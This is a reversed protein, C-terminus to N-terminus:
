SKASALVRLVVVDHPEVSATFSDTYNGDHGSDWLDLVGYDVGESLGDVAAFEVSLSVAANDDIRNILLLAVDGNALQKYWVTSDSEDVLRGQFGLADQNLAILRENGLIALTENTARVYFM